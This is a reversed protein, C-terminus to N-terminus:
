RVSIEARAVRGPVKVDRPRVEVFHDGRTIPVLGKYPPALSAKVEGDVLVELPAGAPIGETAAVVEFADASVPAEDAHFVAGSRPRVLVVRPEGVEARREAAECGPLKSCLFWGMGHPDMGPAGEAREGLFRAYVDPLAVVTRAGVHRHMNCPTGPARGRAFRRTVRDPCSESPREGSLACVEAEETLAPDALAGRSGVDRMARKMVDFFIPGAGSAGTVKDTPAGSANGVWVVVTREHTFGATWADRYGTSTGTKLAVAFPLEFPGRAHLGRV